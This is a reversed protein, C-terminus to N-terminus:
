IKDILQKMLAFIEGRTVPADFRKDHITMGVEDVLYDYIPEAWHQTLIKERIKDIPFYRGPCATRMFDDHCKVVTDPYTEQVFNILKIATNMQTDNMHEIEFDGEFCIGISVDNFGKTHAGIMNIPRGEYVTGDKRVFYSYGIGSWGNEDIHWNEIDKITCKKSKAHHLIIYKTKSRPTLRGTWRLNKKIIKMSIVM